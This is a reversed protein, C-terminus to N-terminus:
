CPRQYQLDQLDEALAHCDRLQVLYYLRHKSLGDLSCSEARDILDARFFNSNVVRVERGVRQVFMNLEVNGLLRFQILFDFLDSVGLQDAYAINRAQQPGKYNRFVKLINLKSVELLARSSHNANHMEFFLLAYRLM